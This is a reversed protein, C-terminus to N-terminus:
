TFFLNLICDKFQLWGFQGEVFLYKTISPMGLNLPCKRDKLLTIEMARILLTYCIVNKTAM